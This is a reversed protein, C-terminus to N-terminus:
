ATKLLSSPKEWPFATLRMQKALLSARGVAGRLFTHALSCFIPTPLLHTLPSSLASRLTSSLFSASRVPQDLKIDESFVKAWSLLHASSIHRRPFCLGNLFLQIPAHLQVFRLLVGRCIEHAVLSSTPAALPLGCVMSSYPLGVRHSAAEHLWKGLGWPLGVVLM